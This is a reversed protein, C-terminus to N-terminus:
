LLWPSLLERLGMGLVWLVLLKSHAVAVVGRKWGRPVGEM